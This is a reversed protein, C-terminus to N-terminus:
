LGQHKEGTSRSYHSEEKGSAVVPAAKCTSGKCTSDPTEKAVAGTPPNDHPLSDLSPFRRPSLSALRPQTPREQGSM